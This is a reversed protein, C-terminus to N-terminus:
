ADPFEKALLDIIWSAQQKSLDEIVVDRGAIQSLLQDLEAETGKIGAKELTVRIKARQAPSAEAAPRSSPALERAAAVEERSAIGRKAGIGLAVLARGWCSTELNMLESGRTYNTRGPVLEWATGIGPRPDDPTRYAYAIGCIMMTGFLEKPEWSFQLSGEPYKALFAEIRESVPIYDDAIM